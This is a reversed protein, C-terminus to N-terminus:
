KEVGSATRKFRNTVGAKFSACPLELLIFNRYSGDEHAQAWDSAVVKQRVYQDGDGAACQQPHSHALLQAPVRCSALCITHRGQSRPSQFFLQSTCLRKNKLRGSRKM